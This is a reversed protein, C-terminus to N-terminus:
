VKADLKEACRTCFRMYSVGKGNPLFRVYQRGGEFDPKNYGEMFSKPSLLLTGLNGYNVISNDCLPHKFSDDTTAHVVRNSVVKM